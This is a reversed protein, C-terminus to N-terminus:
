KCPVAKFALPVVKELLVDAIKPVVDSLVKNIASEFPTLLKNDFDVNVQTHTTHSRLYDSPAHTHAWAITSDTHTQM